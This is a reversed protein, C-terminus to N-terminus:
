EEQSSFLNLTSNTQPNLSSAPTKDQSTHPWGIIQRIRAHAIAAAGSLEHLTARAETLTRQADLLELFTAHGGRYAEQTLEYSRQAAPVIQDRVMALQTRATEYEAHSGALQGLLQNETALRQQRARMLDFRAALMDGQRNDWLPLTIGAGLEYIGDDTEGKYGAGFRVDLDPVREAKARELRAAAADIERDAVILAPHQARAHSKLEELALVPLQDSSDGDLREADIAVGGLLLSLQEIATSKEKALRARAFEIQYLEIRPRIVETEPAARAEFRTQAIRLTEGGLHALEAYAADARRNAVIRAHLQAIEGFIERLRLEARARSASQEAEAAAVGARLRDGLVIPQSISAVTVGQGVGNDFPAEETSVEIRPNPYRAAQWVRGAAIGIESRAAALAPNRSEAVDFLDALTIPGDQPLSVHSEASESAPWHDPPAVRERALEDLIRREIGAVGGSDRPACAPIVATLGAAAGCRLIDKLKWRLM